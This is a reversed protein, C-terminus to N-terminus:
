KLLVDHQYIFKSHRITDNESPDFVFTVDYKKIDGFDKILIKFNSRNSFRVEATKLGDVKASIVGEFPHKFRGVLEYNGKKIRESLITPHLIEIQKIKNEYFATYIPDGHDFIKHQKINKDLYYEYMEGHRENNLYNYYWILNGSEDFIQERSEQNGRSYNRRKKLAGDPYFEFSNGIRNGELDMFIFKNLTQETGIEAFVIVSDLQIQFYYVSDAKEQFINGSREHNETCGIVNWIIGLKIIANLGHKIKMIRELIRLM